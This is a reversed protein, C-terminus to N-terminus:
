RVVDVQRGDIRRLSPWLYIGLLAVTAFALLV